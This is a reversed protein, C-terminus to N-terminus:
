KWPSVTMKRVCCLLHFLIGFYSGITLIQFMLWLSCDGATQQDGVSSDSSEKRVVYILYYRQITAAGAAAAGAGAAAAGAGAGAGAGRGAAAGAAGAGAAVPLTYALGKARLSASSLFMRSPPWGDKVRSYQYTTTCTLPMKCFVTTCLNSMRRYVTHLFQSQNAM